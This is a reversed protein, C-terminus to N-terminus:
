CQETFHQTWVHADRNGELTGIRLGVGISDYGGLINERHGTSHIWVTFISRVTAYGGIGWALNEAAGTCGGHLAGFRRMWYTFDRGCAEHSFSDCRLVDGSKHEASRDLLPVDVLASLGARGRAFNTMCRMTHEQAAAAARLNKQGHCVSEPAILGSLEMGQAPATSGAALAAM